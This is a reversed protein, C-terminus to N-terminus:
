RIVVTDFSNSICFKKSENSKLIKINVVRLLFTLNLCKTYLIYYLTDEGGAGRGLGINIPKQIQSTHIKIPKVNSAQGFALGSAAVFLFM